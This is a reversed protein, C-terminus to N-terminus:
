RQLPHLPGGVSRTFTMRREMTSCGSCQWTHHEYGSVLMKTDKVVQVLRREEGCALCLM